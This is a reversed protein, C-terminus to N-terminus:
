WKSGSNEAASFRMRRGLPRALQEGIKAKASPGIMAGGFEGAALLLPHRDGPGDGVTWPQQQGVFRGAIEIGLGCVMHKPRKRRQHLGAAKCGQDCGM